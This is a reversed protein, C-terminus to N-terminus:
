VLAVAVSQPNVHKDLEALAQTADKKAVKSSKILMSLKIASLNIRATDSLEEKCNIEKLDGAKQIMDAPLLVFLFADSRIMCRADSFWSQTDIENQIKQNFITLKSSTRDDPTPFDAYIIKLNTKLLECLEHCHAPDHRSTDQLDKVIRFIRFRMEDMFARLADQQYVKKFIHDSMISKYRNANEPEMLENQVAARKALQAELESQPPCAAKILQAFRMAVDGKPCLCKGRTADLWQAFEEDSVICYKSNPTFILHFCTVGCWDLCCALRKFLEPKNHHAWLLFSVCAKWFCRSVRKNSKLKAIFKHLLRDAFEARTVTSDAGGRKVGKGKKKAAAKSPAEMPGSRLSKVDVKPGDTPMKTDGVLDWVSMNSRHEFTAFDRNKQLVVEVEKGAGNHMHLTVKDATASKFKMPCKLANHIEGANSWATGNPLHKHIVLSQLLPVNDEPADGYVTKLMDQKQAKSPIILTVGSGMRPKLLSFMCMNDFVDFLQKDHLELFKHLSCFKHLKDNAKM